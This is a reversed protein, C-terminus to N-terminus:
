YDSKASNRSNANRGGPKKKKNLGFIVVDKEEDFIFTDFKLRDDSIVIVQLADKIEQASLEIHEKKGIADVRNKNLMYVITSIKLKIKKGRKRKALTILFQDVVEIIKDQSLDFTVIWRGM